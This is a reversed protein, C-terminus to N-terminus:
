DKSMASIRDALKALFSVQVDEAENVVRKRFENFEGYDRPAQGEVITLDLFDNVLKNTIEDREQDSKSMVQTPHGRM